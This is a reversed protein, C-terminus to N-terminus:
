CNHEDAVQLCFTGIDDYKLSETCHLLPKYQRANPAIDRQFM